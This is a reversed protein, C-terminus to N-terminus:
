EGITQIGDITYPEKEDFATPHHGFEMGITHQIKEAHRKTIPQGSLARQIVPRELRTKFALLDPHWGLIDLHEQLTM